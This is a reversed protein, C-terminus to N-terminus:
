PLARVGSPGIENYLKGGNIGQCKVLLLKNDPVNSRKHDIILKAYIYQFKEPWWLGFQVFHSMFLAVILINKAGKGCFLLANGDQLM